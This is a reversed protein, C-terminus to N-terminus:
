RYTPGLIVVWETIAIATGVLISIIDQKRVKIKM